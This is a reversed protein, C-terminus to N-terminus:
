QEIGGTSELCDILHHEERIVNLRFREEATGAARALSDWTCPGDLRALAEPPLDKCLEWKLLLGLYILERTNELCEHTGGGRYRSLLVQEMMPRKRLDIEELCDRVCREAIRITKMFLYPTTEAARALQKWNCDDIGLEALDQRPLEACQKWKLKLGVYVLDDVDELCRNMDEQDNMVVSLPKKANAEVTRPSPSFDVQTVNGTSPKGSALLSEPDQGAAAMALWGRDQLEELSLTLGSELEALCEWVVDPNTTSNFKKSALQKGGLALILDARREPRHVQRILQPQEHLRELPIDILQAIRPLDDEYLINRLERDLEEIKALQRVRGAGWVKVVAASYNEADAIYRLESLMHRFVKKFWNKFADGERRKQATAEKHLTEIMRQVQSVRKGTRGENPIRREEPEHIQEWERPIFYALEATKTLVDEFDPRQLAPNFKRGLCELLTMLWDNLVESDVTERRVLDFFSEDAGLDQNLTDFACGTLLKQIDPWRHDQYQTGPIPM